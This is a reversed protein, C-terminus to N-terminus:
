EGVDGQAYAITAFFDSAEKFVFYLILGAMANFDTVDLIGLLAFFLMALGLLYTGIAFTKFM